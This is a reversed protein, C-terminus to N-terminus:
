TIERTVTATRDRKSVRFRVPMRDALEAVHTVVGVVREASALSEITGAVIDLAEPDLAGFGEDLFISELAAGGDDSLSAVHDALALALALSAQFTEGGSLSHVSRTEDANVHDIVLLDGSDSIALSYTQASLQRLIASAGDLLGRVAEEVVWEAFHARDLLRALTTAVTEQEQAARIENDLEKARTRHEDIRAVAHEADRAATAVGRMLESLADGAIPVGLEVARTRLDSTLADREAALLNARDEAEATTKELEALQEDAWSALTTWRGDIAVGAEPEPPALGAALLADRQRGFAHECKGIAAEARQLVKATSGADDIATARAHTLAVVRRLPEVDPAGQVRDSLGTRREELEAALTEARHLAELAARAVDEAKQRQRSAADLTKRAREVAPARLKPPLKVVPQDCVPCPEGAILEVRLAAHAHVQNAEGLASQAAAEADNAQTLKAHAAEAAARANSLVETSKALRANVTALDDHAALLSGLEHADPQGALQETLAAVAAEAEDRRTRANAVVDAQRVVDDPVSVGRVADAARAATIAAARADGLDGALRADVESAIDLEIVLAGLQELQTVATRLANDDAAPLRELERELGSRTGAATSARDRAARAMREYRDLGLLAGLIRTRDGGTAHLFASFRGQPLVVCKTFQDFDLGILEAVAPGLKTASTEITDVQGDAALEELRAARTKAGGGEANRRVIRVIRYRRPGLAFTLSVKAEAAGLTVVPAIVREGHRPVSGYLAFCIADILTSKGHGTPGVIAFLHADDFDVVTPDRFPGFGELELTIPRM